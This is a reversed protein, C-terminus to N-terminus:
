HRQKKGEAILMERTTVILYTELCQLIDCTHTYTEGWGWSPLWQEIAVQMTVNTM